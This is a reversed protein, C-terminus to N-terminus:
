PLHIQRTEGTRNDRVILDSGARLQADLFEYITIARNALDTRSLNTREQLRRLDDEAAPILSVRIRDPIQPQGSTKSAGGVRRELGVLKRSLQKVHHRLQDFKASAPAAHRMTAADDRLIAPVPSSRTEGTRNDRVILDSGARLQADLFEYITIARNALDTRSLNTREQLRRLDDEAAPILSVRIRDPIQPQGSTKSAGGVRRELGVLKRSLQKVHHRLQDFKASAPAAHRMTAADNCLTAPAPSSVESAALRNLQVRVAELRQLWDGVNGNCALVFSELQKPSPLRQGNLYASVTSHSCSMARALEGLSPDGARLRLRRMEGAFSHVLDAPDLRPRAKSM